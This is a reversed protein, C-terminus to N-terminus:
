IINNDTLIKIIEECEKTEEFIANLYEKNYTPFVGGSTVYKVDIHGNVYKAEIRCHQYDNYKKYFEVYGLQTDGIYNITEEIEYNYKSFLDKMFELKSM